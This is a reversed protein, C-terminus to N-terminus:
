SGFKRTDRMRFPKRKAAFSNKTSSGAASQTADSDTSLSPSSDGLVNSREGRWEVEFEKGSSTQSLAEVIRAVWAADVQGSDALAHRVVKNDDNSPEKEM